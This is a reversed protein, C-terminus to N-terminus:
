GENSAESKHANLASIKSRAESEAPPQPAIPNVLHMDADEGEVASLVISRISDHMQYAGAARPDEVETRSILPLEKPDMGFSGWVAHQPEKALEALEYVLLGNGENMLARLTHMVGVVLPRHLEDGNKLRVTETPETAM